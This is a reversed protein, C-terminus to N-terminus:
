ESGLINLNLVLAHLNSIKRNLISQKRSATETASQLQEKLFSTQDQVSVKTKRQTILSSLMYLDNFLPSKLSHNNPLDHTLPIQYYNVKLEELHEIAELGKLCSINENVICIKKLNQANAFDKFLQIGIQHFNITLSQLNKMQSIHQLNQTLLQCNSTELHKLELFQPMQDVNEINTVSKLVLKQLLLLKVIDSMNIQKIYCLTLSTLLSLQAINDQHLLSCNSIELQKLSKLNILTNVYVNPQDNAEDNLINGYTNGCIKLNSLCANQITAESITINSVYISVNKLKNAKFIDTIDVNLFDEFINLSKINKLEQIGLLSEIINSGEISINELENLEHLCILNSFYVNDCYNISIDHLQKSYGLCEPLNDQKSVINQLEIDYLNSLGNLFSYSDIQIAFLTLRRLKSFVHQTFLSVDVQIIQEDFQNELVFSILSDRQCELNQINFQDIDHSNCKSLQQKGQYM